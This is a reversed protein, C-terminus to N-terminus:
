KGAAVNKVNGIPRVTLVSVEVFRQISLRRSNSHYTVDDNNLRFEQAALYTEPMKM